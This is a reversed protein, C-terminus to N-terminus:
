MKFFPLMEKVEAETKQPFFEGIYWPFFFHIWNHLNTVYFCYASILEKYDTKNDILDL